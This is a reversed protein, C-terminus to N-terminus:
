GADGQSGAAPAVAARARKRKSTPREATPSGADAESADAAERAAGDNPETEQGASEVTPEPAEAAKRAKADRSLGATYANWHIKCMRALGDRQSPQRPFDEIPAEHGEIGFRASGICRRTTTTADAM